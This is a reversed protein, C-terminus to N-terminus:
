NVQYLIGSDPSTMTFIMDTGDLVMYCNYYGGDSGSKVVIYCPTDAAEPTNIDISLTGDGNDIFFEYGYYEYGSDGTLLQVLWVANEASDAYIPEADTYTQATAAAATAAPHAATAATAAATAATTAAATTTTATTTTTQAVTTTTSTAAAQATDPSLAAWVFFIVVLLVILGIVGLLIPVAMSKKAPGPQQVPPQAYQQIPQQAFQQVPPQAYQQVLPQTPQQVPIVPPVFSTLPSSCNSCFKSSDQNQSGCKSCYM